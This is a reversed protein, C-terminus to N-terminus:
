GPDEATDAGGSSGLPVAPAPEEEGEFDFAGEDLAPAIRPELEDHEVMDLGGESGTPAEREDVAEPLDEESVEAVTDALVPVALTDGIGLRELDVEPNFRALVWTPVGARDHAIGWATEGTRVIHTETGVLGGRRAVYRDLRLDTAAERAISFAEASGADVVPIKVAQGVVLLDRADLGNVETLDEVSVDAWGALLVLNEGPRVEVEFTEVSSGEAVPLEPGVPAPSPAASAVEAVDEEVEWAAEEAPGPAEVEAAAVAEPEEIEDTTCATALLAATALLHPIRFM